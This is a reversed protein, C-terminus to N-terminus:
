EHKREKESENLDAYRGRDTTWGMLTGHESGELFFIGDYQKIWEEESIDFPWGNRIALTQLKKTYGKTFQHLLVFSGPHDKTWEIFGLISMAKAVERTPAKALPIPM